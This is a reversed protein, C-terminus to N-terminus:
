GTTLRVQAGVGRVSSWVSPLVRPPLKRGKLRQDVLWLGVVFEEKSLCGVRRTDVLDWVEELVHAPLRSRQWLERVVVNAVDDAGSYSSTTTAVIFLGRNAAWVGEYRKKERATVSDRWRRRDGEHHKNPHKRQLLGPKRTRKTREDDSSSSPPRRLTKRMAPPPPAQKPRSASSKGPSPTRSNAFSPLRQASSNHWPLSYPAPSRSPTPAISSPRSSALASAVMANAMSDGSMHPTIQRISERQYLSNGSPDLTSRGISRPPSRDTKMPSPPIPELNRPPPLPPVPDEDRSVPRGRRPPPLSPRLKEPPGSSQSSLPTTSDSGNEKATDMSSKKQPLSPRSTMAPVHPGTMPKPPRQEPTRVQGGTRAALPKPDVEAREAPASRVPTSGHALNRAPAETERGSRPLDTIGDGSEVVVSSPKQIKPPKRQKNDGTVGLRLNREDPPTLVGEDSEVTGATNAVFRPPTRRVPKPSTLPPSRAGRRSKEASKAKPSGQSGTKEFMQVLTNTPPISSTDTPKAPSTLDDNSRRVIGSTARSTNHELAPRLVNQSQNRKHAASPSPAPRQGSPQPSFRAAAINAAVNSPSLSRSSVADLPVDLSAQSWRKGPKGGGTSQPTLPGGPSEAQRQSLSDGNGKGVRTAALLAGRSTDAVNLKPKPKVPPKAAFASSAGQLAANRTNFPTESQQRSPSLTRPTTAGSM